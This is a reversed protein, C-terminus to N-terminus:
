KSLGATPDIMMATTSCFSLVNTPNQTVSFQDISVEANDDVTVTSDSTVADQGSHVDGADIGSNSSPNNSQRAITPFIFAFFGFVALERKM